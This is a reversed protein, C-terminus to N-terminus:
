SIFCFAHLLLPAIRTDIMSSLSMTLGVMGIMDFM